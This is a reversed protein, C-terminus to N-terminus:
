PTGKITGGQPLSLRALWVWFSSCTRRLVRGLEEYSQMGRMSGIDVVVKNGRQRRWNSLIDSGMLM